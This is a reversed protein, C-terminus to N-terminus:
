ERTPSNAWHYGASSAGFAGRITLEKLLIIDTFLQTVANLGKTSAIM